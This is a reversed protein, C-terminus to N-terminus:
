RRIPYDELSIKHKTLFLGKSNWVLKCDWYGQHWFYKYYGDEAYYYGDKVKWVTPMFNRNPEEKIPLFLYLLLILEKM